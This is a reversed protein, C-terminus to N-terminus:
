VSPRRPDSLEPSASPTSITASLKTCVAASALALRIASACTGSTRSIALSLPRLRELVMSSNKVRSATM